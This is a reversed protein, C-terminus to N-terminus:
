CLHGYLQSLQGWPVPLESSEDFPCLVRQAREKDAPPELVSMLAGENSTAAHLVALIESIDRSFGHEASVETALENWERRLDAELKIVDQPTLVKPVRFPHWFKPSLEEGGDVIQILTRKLPEETVYYATLHSVFIVHQPQLTQQIGERLRVVDKWNVAAIFDGYAM